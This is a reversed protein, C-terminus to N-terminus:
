ARRVIAFLIRSNSVIRWALQQRQQCQRMPITNLRRAAPPMEGLPVARLLGKVAVCRKRGFFWGSSCRVGDAALLRNWYVTREDRRVSWGIRHSSGGDAARLKRAGLWVVVALRHHSGTISSLRHGFVGWCFAKDPTDASRDPEHTGYHDFNSWKGVRTQQFYGNQRL